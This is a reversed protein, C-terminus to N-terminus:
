DSTNGLNKPIAESNIQTIAVDYVNDPINFFKTFNDKEIANIMKANDAGAKKAQTVKEQLLKCVAM